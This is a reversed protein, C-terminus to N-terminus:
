NRRIARSHSWPTLDPSPAQGERIITIFKHQTGPTTGPLPRDCQVCQDCKKTHGTNSALNKGTYM